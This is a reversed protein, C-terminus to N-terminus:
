TSEWTATVKDFQGTKLNDSTIWIQLVSGYSAFSFPTGFGDGIQLLLENHRNAFAAKQLLYGYGFMQLPIIGAGALNYNSKTREPLTTERIVHEDWTAPAPRQPAPGTRNPKLVALAKRAVEALDEASIAAYEPVPVPELHVVAGDNAAQEIDAILACFNRRVRAPVKGRCM